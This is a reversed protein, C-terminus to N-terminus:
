KLNFSDKIDKELEQVDKNAQSHKISFFGQHQSKGFTVMQAICTTVANVIQASLNSLYDGWGLDKQLMPTAERIYQDTHARFEKLSEVDPHMFAHEKAERLNILLEQAKENAEPHHTGISKIKTAYSDLLSDLKDSAVKYHDPLSSKTESKVDLASASEIKSTIDSVNGLPVKQGENTVVYIPASFQLQKSKALQQWHIYEKPPEYSGNKSNYTGQVGTIVAMTNTSAAKVGDDTARSGPWFDNGPWSFQDWAVFSTLTHTKESSGEPYALQGTTDVISSPRVRFDIHGINKTQEVDGDYPDYHVIDILQLKDHHKELVHELAQRFAGKIVSTYNGAFQGTGIGPFTVAAHKGESQAQANIQLLQNLLRREYLDNFRDQDLVGDVIVEDMDATHGTKDSRLLAGPVYALHATFPVNHNKFSYHGGDNYVIVPVDISVDGLISEERLTWDRKDHYVGSEAFVKPIKSQILLTAFTNLDMDNLAIGSSELQSRFYAGVEARGPVCLFQHYEKIKQLTQESILIEATIM